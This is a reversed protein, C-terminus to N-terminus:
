LILLSYSDLVYTAHVKELDDNDTYSLYTTLCRRLRRESLVVACRSRRYGLLTRKHPTQIKCYADCYGDEKRRELHLVKFTSTNPLSDILTRCRATREKLFTRMKELESSKGRNEIAKSLDVMYTLFGELVEATQRYDNQVLCSDCVLPNQIFKFTVKIKFYSTIQLLSLINIYLFSYQVSRREVQTELRRDTKLGRPRLRAARQASETATREEARRKEDARRGDAPRELRLSGARGAHVPREGGQSAAEM